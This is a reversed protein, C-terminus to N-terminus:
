NEEVTIPEVKHNTSEKNPASLKKFSYFKSRYILAFILFSGIAVPQHYAISHNFLQIEEASM